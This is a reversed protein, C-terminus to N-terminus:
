IEGYNFLVSFPKCWHLVYKYAEIDVNEPIKYNINGETGKTKGLDVYDNAELDKSLYVHLAPGNITYFDEFRIYDGVIRVTGSAPHGSTGIIQSAVVEGESVTENTEPLEDQVEITIFLPSVLYYLVGLVIIVGLAILFKKM